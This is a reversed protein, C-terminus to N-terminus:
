FYNFTKTSNSLIEIRESIEELHDCSECQLQERGIDQNIWLDFRGTLVTIEDESTFKEVYDDFYSRSCGGTYNESDHQGTIICRGGIGNNVAINYEKSLNEYNRLLSVTFINAHSDGIIRITKKNNENSFFAIEKRVRFIKWYKMNESIGDPYFNTNISYFLVEDPVFVIDTKTVVQQLQEL